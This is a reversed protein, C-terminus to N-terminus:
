NLLVFIQLWTIKQITINTIFNQVYNIRQWAGHEVALLVHSKEQHVIEKSIKEEPAGVNSFMWQLSTKDQRQLTVM